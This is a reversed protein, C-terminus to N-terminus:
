EYSGCDIETNSLMQEFPMRTVPYWLGDSFVGEYQWLWLGYTNYSTNYRNVVFPNTKASNYIYVVSGNVPIRFGHPSEIVKANITNTITSHIDNNTLTLNFVESYDFTKTVFTDGNENVKVVIEDITDKVDKLAEEIKNMNNANLPTEGNIWTTKQYAM